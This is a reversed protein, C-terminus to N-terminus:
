PALGASWNVVVSYPAAPGSSSPVVMLFRGDPAVDYRRDRTPQARNVALPTQFLEVPRGASFPPGAISVSMMKGDPGLYYLERGDRRWKPEFGGNASIQWKGGSADPFTQVVIQYTGSENTSYAVLDSNPSVRAQFKDFGTALLPAPKRDGFLPLLWTDYSSTNGQRLRSFVIYKGDASWHVPISSVDGSPLVAETGAGTSSAEYIKTVGDNSRASAFALRSGDPSWSATWDPFPNTIVPQAVSRQLDVVWIDRNNNAFLDVVARDGKPSIDLNGYNDVPGVQGVQQGERNFWLLQKGATPTAKRYMLLGTNSVTFTSDLNDAVVTSAGQPHGTADARQAILMGENQYVVYGGAVYAMGNFRNPQLQIVRVPAEASDLSALFIGSEEPVGAAVVYLFHRGDPLFVPLGHLIEKRGADLKTVPTLGGGSDSMRVIVNDNARALLITGDGNWSGGRTTGVTGIQRSAGSALDLIKLMGDSLFAIRRSDPSWLLGNINETGPIMQGTASGIPRISLTRRGDAPQTAYALSTGDPSLSAPGVLGPLSMEFHMTSVAVPARRSFLLAAVGATVLAVALAAVLLMGRVGRSPSAAAVTPAGAALSGDMFVRADGIHQLRQASNKNLTLSLLLRIAPPTSKPLLDLDPPSTVITALVDTITEGGFAQRGTLMEYLVCGFAWIDTRSDVELGRAQEPSMYRPTGMILGPTSGSAMTPMATMATAGVDFTKPGLAKALGFDLVKVTGAPTLKINAPKLDRHVVGREHAAVLAEAIQRAIHLAEDLPLPGKRLRDELTDGEVLEMVICASAGVPELGYIQAINPHNLSALVQAEREFRPLRDADSAFHDPLLKLAVDRQLRADRGRFVIGMGGEGLQATVEYPGIRSGPSIAM